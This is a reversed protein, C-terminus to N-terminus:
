DYRIRPDVLAYALDAIFNMAIYAVGFLLVVAGVVPFDNNMASQVVQRGIGPWAFVTEVFVTGTIFGALVMASITLPQILSNRFVHKWIVTQNSVGKARALKVYESDLVELVSSRTLRVYSAWPDFGLTLVPLVMHKMQSTISSNVARGSTPFWHFEIAFILIMLIALWFSPTAQGILAIGRAVYDWFAGRKVASLVGLPVGVGTGVIWAVFGLELTAGIRQRIISTVPVEQAISEGFDGRAINGVWVFYQVVPPRDLGWRHKLVAVTQPSMGYGAQGIFVLLPDPGLRSLIFVVVTIGWLSFFAFFIRRILYRRM